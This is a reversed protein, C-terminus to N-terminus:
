STKEEKKTKKHGRHRNRGKKPKKADSIVTEGCCEPYADKIMDADVHYYACVAQLLRATMEADVDSRHRNQPVDELPCWARFCGELGHAKTHIEARRCLKEVDLWSFEPPTLEYRACAARLARIDNSISFGVAFDASDFLTRIEGYASMFTPSNEVVEMEYALIHDRVYENWECAPDIVLDTPPTLIRFREDVILYGLSYVSGPIKGNAFEMDFVLIRIIAM